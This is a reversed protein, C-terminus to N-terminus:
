SSLSILDLKYSCIAVSVRGPSHFVLAFTNNFQDFQEM